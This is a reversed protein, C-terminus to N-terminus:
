VHLLREKELYDLLSHVDQRSRSRHVRTLQLGSMAHHKGNKLLVYPQLFPSAFNERISLEQVQEGFKFSEIETWPISYRRFYNRVVIGENSTVVGMRAFFAWVWVLYLTAFAIAAVAWGITADKGGLAVVYFIMADACTLAVALPRISDSRYVERM